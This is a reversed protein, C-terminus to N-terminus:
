DNFFIIKFSCNNETDEFKNTFDERKSAELYTNINIIDFMVDSFLEQLDDKKGTVELYSTSFESYSGHTMYQRVYYTGDEPFHRSLYAQNEELREYVTELQRELQETRCYRIYFPLLSNTRVDLEPGLWWDVNDSTQGLQSHTGRYYADAKARDLIKEAMRTYQDDIDTTIAEPEIYGLLAKNTTQM